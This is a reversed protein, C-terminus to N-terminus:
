ENKMGIINEIYWEISKARGEYSIELFGQEQYKRLRPEIISIQENCPMLFKNKIYAFHEPEVYLTKDDSAWFPLCHQFDFVRNLEEPLFASFHIFQFKMDYLPDMGMDPTYVGKEGRYTEINNEDPENSGVGWNERFKQCAIEEMFWFDVDGVSGVWTDKAKMTRWYFRNLAGGAIFISDNPKLLNQYVAIDYCRELWFAACKLFLKDHLTFGDSEELGGDSVWFTINSIDTFKSNAFDIILHPKLRGACVEFLLSIQDDPLTGARSISIKLPFTAQHLAKYAINACAIDIITKFNAIDVENLGKRRDATKSMIVNRLMSKEFDPSFQTPAM